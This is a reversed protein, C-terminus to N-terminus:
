KATDSNTAKFENYADDIALRDDATTAKSFHESYTADNTIKGKYKNTGQQGKGKTQDDNDAGSGERKKGEKKPWLQSAEEDLLVDITKRYGQPNNLIKGENRTKIIFDKGTEDNPNKEFDFLNFLKEKIIKKQNAALKPDEPLAYGDLFQDAIEGIVTFNEKRSIDKERDDYKKQLADIETKNSKKLEDQMKIFAPHVKVKDEEIEIKQGAKNTIIEEVIADLGKTETTLAYKQKLEKEKVSLVERQAKKYGNDFEKTEAEKFTQVRTADLALLEQLATDNVESEDANLLAAVKDSPMNLTKGLFGALFEKLKM